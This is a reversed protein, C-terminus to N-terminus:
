RFIVYHLRTFFFNQLSYGVGITRLLIFVCFHAYKRVGYNASYEYRIRIVIIFVFTCSISPIFSAYLLHFIFKKPINTLYRTLVRDSPFRVSAYLPFLLPFPLTHVLNVLTAIPVLQRSKHILCHIKTNCVGSPIRSKTVLSM